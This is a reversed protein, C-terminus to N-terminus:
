NSLLPPYQCRNEDRGEDREFTEIVQSSRAQRRLFMHYLKRFFVWMISGTVTILVLVLPIVIVVAKCSAWHLDLVNITINSSYGVYLLAMVLLSVIDLQNHANNKYPLFVAFVIAWMIVVLAIASVGFVSKINAILLFVIFRLLLYYASFSRLDRPHTRYSGQFADMFIHLAPSGLGLRGLCRQFCGCPYAVLIFFPLLTFIFGIFLALVAFPLHERGFYEITADYYLFNKELVKGAANYAVTPTLLDFCVGLIKVNSLLIFTAFSHVLSAKVNFQRLYCKLCSKFPKWALVVIRFNRDYM